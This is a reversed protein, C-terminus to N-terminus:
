WCRAPNFPVCSLIRYRLEQASDSSPGSNANRSQDNASGQASAVQPAFALGAAQLAKRRSLKSM